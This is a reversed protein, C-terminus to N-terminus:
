CDIMGAARLASLGSRLTDRSVGLEVALAPLSPLADGPRYRGEVIQVRLTEAVWRYAPMGVVQEDGGFGAAGM